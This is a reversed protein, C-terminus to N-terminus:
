KLFWDILKNNNSIKESFWNKLENSNFFLVEILKNELCGVPTKPM